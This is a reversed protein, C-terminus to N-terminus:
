HTISHTLSHTLTHTHTHTHPSSILYMCSSSTCTTNSYTGALDDRGFTPDFMSRVFSKVMVKLGLRKKKLRTVNVRAGGRLSLLYLTAPQVIAHGGRHSHDGVLGGKVTSAASVAATSSGGVAGAVGMAILSLIVVVLASFQM